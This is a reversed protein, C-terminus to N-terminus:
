EGPVPFSGQCDGTCPNTAGNDRTLLIATIVGGVVVAGATGWVLPRRYWPTVPPATAAETRVTTDVPSLAPPIGGNGVTVKFPRDAGETCVTGGYVDVGLVIIEVGPPAILKGPVMAGQYRVFEKEGEARVLIDVRAVMKLPDSPVKADVILPKSEDVKGPVSVVLRPPDKGAWWSRASVFARLVPAEMTEPLRHGPDMALLRSFSDRADQERGSKALLIGRWKHIEILGANSNNPEREATDLLALAKEYEKQDALLKAAAVSDDRGSAIEREALREEVKKLVSEVNAREPSDPAERLFSQYLDRARTLKGSDDDVEFQKRTAQAINLLVLPDESLAYAAEFQKMAKEYNGLRYAKDGSNFHRAAKRLAARTPKAEAVAGVLILALAVRGLATM